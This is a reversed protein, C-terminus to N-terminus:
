RGTVAFGTPRLRFLTADDVSVPVIRGYIFERAATLGKQIPDLYLRDM